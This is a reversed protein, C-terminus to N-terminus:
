TLRRRLAGLREWLGELDEDSLAPVRKLQRVFTDIAQKLARRNLSLFDAVIRPDSLLVRTADRYSGGSWGADDGATVALALAIAHPLHSMAAVLADHRDADRLMVPVAGVGRILVDLRPDNGITFWTRGVFLDPDRRTRDETGAMPHGPVFTVDRRRAKRYAAVVPGKVSAVDTLLSGPRVRRVVDPLLRLLTRAPVALVTVDAIKVDDLDDGQDIEVTRALNRRKLALSLSGGIQGPGVIAVVTM